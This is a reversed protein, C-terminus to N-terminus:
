NRSLSGGSVRGRSPTHCKRRMVRYRGGIWPVEPGGAALRRDVAETGPRSGRACACARYPFSPFSQRRQGFAHALSGAATGEPFTGVVAELPRRRGRFRWVTLVKVNFNSCHQEETRAASVSQNHLFSLTAMAEGAVSAGIHMIDCALYCVSLIWFQFLHIIHKPSCSGPLIHVGSCLWTWFTFMGTGIEHLKLGTRCILWHGGEVLAAISLASM